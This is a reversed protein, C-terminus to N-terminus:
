QQIGRKDETLKNNFKKIDDKIIRVGDNKRLYAVKVDDALKTHDLYEVKSTASHNATVSNHALNKTNTAIAKLHNGTNVVAARDIETQFNELNLGTINEVSPFLRAIDVM